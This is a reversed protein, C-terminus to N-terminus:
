LDLDEASENNAWEKIAAVLEDREVTLYGIEQRADALALQLARVQATLVELQSRFTPQLRDTNFHKISLPSTTAM